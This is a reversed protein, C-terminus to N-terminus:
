SVRGQELARRLGAEIEFLVRRDLHCDVVLGLTFIGLTTPVRVLQVAEGAPLDIRLSGRLTVQMSGDLRELLDAFAASAAVLNPEADDEVLPLGDSDVVFVMRSGTQAKIWEVVTRLRAQLNGHLPGLDAVAAPPASLRSEALPMRHGTRVLRAGAPRGGDPMGALGARVLTLAFQDRDIWSLSSIM